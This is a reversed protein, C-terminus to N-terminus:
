KDAEEFLHRMLQLMFATSTGFLILGGMAEFTSLLQWRESLIIDGYGLTTSTVVSFYLAQQLETFEGLYYYIFAWSWAEVTHLGIIVLVSITLLCVTHVTKSVRDRTTSSVKQLLSSLYVLGTVHFIVTLIIILTGLPLQGDFM